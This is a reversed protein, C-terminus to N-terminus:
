PNARQIAWLAGVMNESLFTVEAAQDRAFAALKEALEPYRKALAQARALILPSDQDEDDDATELIVERVLKDGWKTIRAITEEYSVYNELRPFRTSGGEGVFCDDIVVYGGPKVYCRLIAMTEDLPGLVDGLAAYVVVDFPEIKGALAVLNGHRFQCLDALGADRAAAECIPIFPAFLDIGFVRLGLEDAIKISVAGKGCGLDVIKAGEPLNLGAILATIAEANGGLEDLDAFLEPAHPLLAPDIELAYALMETESRM